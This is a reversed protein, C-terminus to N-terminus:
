PNWQDIWNQWHKCSSYFTALLFPTQNQFRLFSLSLSIFHKDSIQVLKVQSHYSPKLSLCIASVARAAEFIYSVEFTTLDSRSLIFKTWDLDRVCETSLHYIPMHTHAHTRTHTYTHTITYRHSYHTHTHTHKHTIHTHTSTIHPPPSPTQSHTM